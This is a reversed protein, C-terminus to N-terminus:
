LNTTKQGFSGTLLLLAKRNLVDYIPFFLGISVRDGNEDCWEGIGFVQIIIKENGVRKVVFLDKTSRIIHNFLSVLM